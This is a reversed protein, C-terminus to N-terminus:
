EQINEIQLNIVVRRISDDTDSMTYAFPQGALIWLGHKIVGGNKLSRRIEEAKNSIGVLDTKKYWLNMTTLVSEKFNSFQLQYTIYPMQANEPVASEEYAPIGFGSCFRYLSEAQTM